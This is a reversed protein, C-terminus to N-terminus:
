FRLVTLIYIASKKTCIFIIFESTLLFNNYKIKAKEMVFENTYSIVVTSYNSWPVSSPAVPLFCLIWINFLFIISWNMALVYKPLFMKKM